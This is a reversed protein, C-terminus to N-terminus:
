MKTKLAPVLRAKLEPKSVTLRCRGVQTGNLIATTPPERLVEKTSHRLNIKFAFSSLLKDHKLKIM